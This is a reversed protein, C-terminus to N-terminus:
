SKIIINTTRINNPVFRSGSMARPIPFAMLSNLDEADSTSRSIRAETLVVSTALRSSGTLVVEM